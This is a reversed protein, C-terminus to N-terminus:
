SINYTTPDDVHRSIFWIRSQPDSMQEELISVPEHSQSTNDSQDDDPMDACEEDLRRDESSLHKSNGLQSTASSDGGGSTHDFSDATTSTSDTMDEPTQTTNQEKDLLDTLLRQTAATCIQAVSDGGLSRFRTATAARIWTGQFLGNITEHREERWRSLM